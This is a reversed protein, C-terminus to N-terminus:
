SSPVKALREREEAVWGDVLKQKAKKLGPEQTKLEEVNQKLHEHEGESGGTYVEMNPEPALAGDKGKEPVNNFFAFM